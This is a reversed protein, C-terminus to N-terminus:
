AEPVNRRAPTTSSRRSPMEAESLAIETSKPTDLHLPLTRDGGYPSQLRDIQRAACFLELSSIKAPM